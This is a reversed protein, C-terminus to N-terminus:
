RSQAHGRHHVLQGRGDACPHARVGAGAATLGGRAEVRRQGGQRELPQRCAEGLYEDLRGHRVTVWARAISPRRPVRHPRLRCSSTNPCRPSSARCCIKKVTTSRACSCACCWSCWLLRCCLSAFCSFFSCAVWCSNTFRSRTHWTM